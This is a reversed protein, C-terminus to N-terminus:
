LDHPLVIGSVLATAALRARKRNQPLGALGFREFMAGLHAKVADVSMSLEEAIQRNTAPSEFASEALPRCLAILVGRQVPTLQVSEATDPGVQTSRSETDRPATYVVITAGFCLRDGDKLRQRGVIRKGNIYSGNRSLGEDVLAWETGVRELQAHVRSIEDDWGLAVDCDARRGILIREADAGLEHLVQRGEADRFALFSVGRREAEIRAKLEAASSTHPAFPSTGSV